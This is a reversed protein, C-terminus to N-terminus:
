ARRCAKAAIVGLRNAVFRAVEQASCGDSADIAPLVGPGRSERFTVGIRLGRRWVVEVRRRAKTRPVILWFARAADGDEGDADASMVVQAGAASLNHLRARHPLRACEGDTM